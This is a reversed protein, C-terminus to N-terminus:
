WIRWPPSGNDWLARLTRVDRPTDMCQWFGQHRLASLQERQALSELVDLELSADDGSIEDLVARSLVMFGGNIWGESIRKESFRTVWSGDLELGGYRAPPRVATVTALRGHSLHFDALQHLDVTTLGDGYTLMFHEDSLWDKLRKVRGGTNTDIGTDILHLTWNDRPGEHQLVQGTGTSVTVDTGFHAYEVFYRKIVTGRYGLCVLFECHGFHAYYAMIHWLIPRGGIEVMPKPTREYEDALRTGLGGALIVM